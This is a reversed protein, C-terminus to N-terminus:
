AKQWEGSTRNYNYKEGGSLKFEPSVEGSTSVGIGESDGIVLTISSDTIEVDSIDGLTINYLNITDGSKTNEVLDIGEGKGYWFTNEGEGGFLYDNTKGNGGWMENHGSGGFIQNDKNNGALINSGTTSTADIASETSEESLWVEKNDTGELTISKIETSSTSAQTHSYSQSQASTSSTQTNFNEDSGAFYNNIINVGGGLIGMGFRSVMGLSGAPQPPQNMMPPQGMMPPQNMMPPQRWNFIPMFTNRSFWDFSSWRDVVNTFLSQVFSIFKNNNTSTSSTADDDENGTFTPPEPRETGEDEGGDFTPPEPRETGEDESGDFTPPEPRETGEDEGGDFTPPEPRETDDDDSGDFTPHEPRETGEDEGNLDVGLNKKENENM